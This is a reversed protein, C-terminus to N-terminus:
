IQTHTRVINSGYWEILVYYIHPCRLPALIFSDNVDINKRQWCLCKQWRATDIYLSRSFFFYVFFSHNLQVEIRTTPMGLMRVFWTRSSALFQQYYAFLSNFLLMGLIHIYTRSGRSIPATSNSKFFRSKMSVKWCYTHGSRNGSSVLSYTSFNGVQWDSILPWGFM